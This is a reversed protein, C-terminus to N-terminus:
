LRKKRRHKRANEKREMEVFDGYDPDDWYPQIADSLQSLLIDEYNARYRDFLTAPDNSGPPVKFKRAIADKTRMHRGAKADKRALDYLIRDANKPRDDAAM